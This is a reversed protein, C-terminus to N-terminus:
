TQKSPGSAPLELTFVAGRMAGESTATLRGGLERATNLSSHLGFGHGHRRTTFGFSFLKTLNEAPIGVGNDRVVFCVWRGEQERLEVVLEKDPKGGDDLAHKANRILNVLIQLIKHKTARVTPVPVYDRRVVIGHRNLSGESIQIAEEFLDAPSLEELAGTSRAYSQQMGVIERMHDVDKKLRELERIFTERETQLAGSLQSLYGPLQRGKEDMTLYGGLDTAHADMLQVAKALNNVRSRGVQELLMSASTTVSNLVNGINHLVGSSIEALGAVKTVEVLEQRASALQLQAEKHATIDTSLGFIGITRGERDTLPVKTTSVWTTTGDPYTEKEEIDVLPRGTRLIELENEAAAQAHEQSFLDFDTKGTLGQVGEAGFRRALSASTVIFRGTTDKAYMHGPWAELAALLYDCGAGLSDAVIKVGEGGAPQGSSAAEQQDGGNMPMGTRQDQNM